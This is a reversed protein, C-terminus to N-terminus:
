GHHGRRGGTFLRRVGTGSKDNLGAPETLDGRQFDREQDADYLGAVRLGTGHPGFVEFAEPAQLAAFGTVGPTDM